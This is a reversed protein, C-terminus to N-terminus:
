RGLGACDQVIQWFYDAGIKFDDDNDTIPHALKLGEIHKLCKVNRQLNPLPIAITPVILVGLPIIERHKVHFCEAQTFIVISNQNAV